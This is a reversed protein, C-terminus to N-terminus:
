RKRDVGNIYNIIINLIDKQEEYSRSAVKDVIDVLVDSTEKEALHESHSVLEETTTGLAVAIKSLLDITVSTKALEINGIHNHSVNAEEALKEQTKKKENRM